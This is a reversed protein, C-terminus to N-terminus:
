RYKSLRALEEIINGRSGLHPHTNRPDPTAPPILEIIRNADPHDAVIAADTVAQIDTRDAASRIIADLPQSVVGVKSTVANYVAGCLADSVDKSNHVFVGACLAFNSWEDVELDYVPVPEELHVQIVARVKHNEGAYETWTEFGNDHLVRIITNRGCGLMRAAKNATTARDRVVALGELTIDSRFSTRNRARKRLIDKAMKGNTLAMANRHKKRGGESLNFQQLGKAVAKTYTGGSRHRETTHMRAHERAPGRELNEPCNDTKNGNKHHVVHGVLLVEGGHMYLDVMHHTLIRGAEGYKNCIREYGGNVPYVFKIPMLRDVAPILDKAEKYTGNRLMFLHDPTCRTMAGSDLVVDVLDSILKTKRGRAKGPVITGDQRCSYVWAERGDLEAIMPRTGDLLPVRTEGVFCGNKPHDVKKKEIDHELHIVEQIFPEYHYLKIANYNLHDRLVTYPVDTKDMSLVGAELNLRGFRFEYQHEPLQGAKNVAQIAWASQYGDFSVRLLNYGWNRLNLIFEVIRGIDIQSGQTPVVRLMFDVCVKPRFEEKRKGSLPDYKVFTFYEYPHVMAIGACDGSLALDVHIFRPEEPHLRVERSGRVVRTIKEWQVMQLLDVDPRDWPLEIEESIFPHFLRGDECEYVSEPRKILPTIGFTPIGGHDRLAGDPDRMFDQYFDLPVDIYRQGPPCPKSHTVTQALLDVTDLVKSKRYEDGIAVRFTTPSFFERGKVDWLAYDSVHVFPNGRMEKMHEELFSTSAKRSSVICALGPSMGFRRFRNEMRRRAHNYIQNAQGEPDAEGEMFNVEDILFGFLNAGLAHLERSGVRFHMNKTPFSIVNKLPARPCQEKFYRGSDVFTKIQAFDVDAANNLISSFVGFVIESGPSVGFYRQPDKLCSCIYPGKYIEALSAVFTKGCGISGTLIWEVVQSQPHCVYALEERWLPYVSPGVEEGLYYPDKLFEEISVPKREFDIEWLADLLPVNTDGLDRWMRLAELVAEKERQSLFKLKARWRDTERADGHSLAEAWRLVYRDLDENIGPSEPLPVTAEM